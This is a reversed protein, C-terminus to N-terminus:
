GLFGKDMTKRGGDSVVIVNGVTERIHAAHRIDRISIAIEQGRDVDM